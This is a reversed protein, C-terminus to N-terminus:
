RARPLTWEGPSPVALFRVRLGFNLEHTSLDMAFNGVPETAPPNKLAFGFSGLDTYRYGLAISVRDTLRYGFGAGVQWSFDYVEDSGKFVNNTTSIETAALGIGAGLYTTVPELIPIRGFAWEFGGRVPIDLWVNQLLSWSDIRTLYPDPGDTVLEFNRGGLAETEVRFAWAPLPWEWDEPALESLPFEYGYAGGYVASSDNDKGTNPFMGGPGLDVSGGSEGFGGSLALQGTLYLDGAAAPRAAALCSGMLLACILPLPRM